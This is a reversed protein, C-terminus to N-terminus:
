VILGEYLIKINVINLFVILMNEIVIAAPLKFIKDTVELNKFVTSQLYIYIYKHWVYMILTAEM